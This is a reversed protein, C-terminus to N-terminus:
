ALLEYVAGVHSFYAAEAAGGTYALTPLLYDQVIPRLLVNPSFREPTASIRQLLDACSHKEASSDSGIVFESNEGDGRRQIPTRAGNHITFVLVSSSTVKVQQHYGASELAAGRTRLAAALEEAREIAAHYIPTAVRHLEPDSADLVIVGWEAFVRAYFKAFATGLTEGPCYSERLIQAAESDGVLKVAGDVLPLIEDGLRVASVPAGPVDHSSTELTQLLGDPGPLAVHNVEALDHDYTALWFVPVAEVGEATAQEALKVATLAKYLAFM